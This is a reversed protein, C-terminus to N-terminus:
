LLNAMRETILDDIFDEYQLGHDKGTDPSLQDELELREYEFDKQKAKIEWAFKMDRTGKVKFYIPTKEEIWIDGEGEKQLFVQYEIEASVTEAFVGDLHIYCEGNEDTVAEGIDGFMPSPMEYCYLLRDSYHETAVSRSKGNSTVLSDVYLAGLVKTGKCHNGNTWSDDKKPAFGYKTLLDDDRWRIGGTEETTYISMLGKLDLQAKKFDADYNELTLFPSDKDKIYFKYGMKGNSGEKLFNMYNNTEIHGLSGTPLQSSSSSVMFDIKGKSLKTYIAMLSSGLYGTGRSLVDIGKILVGQIYEANIYLEGKEDIYIGQSAGNNTLKNFVDLQKVGTEDDLWAERVQSSDIYKSALDWDASAFAQDKTKARICSKIDGEKGQTWLDGIDYPPVPETVFIRKKAKALDRADNDSYPLSDWKTGNWRKTVNEWYWLDGVHQAKEEVTKWTASPDDSQNYTEVKGDIQGQLDDAVAKILAKSAEQALEKISKGTLAFETCDMRIKGTAGDVEFTINGDNDVAKLGRTDIWEAIIGVAALVNAVVNGDSDRGYTWTKGGDKSIFFGKAGDKWAYTSDKIDPTNSGYHIEAGEDDVETFYYMGLMNLALNNFYEQMQKYESVKKQAGKDVLDLLKTVTGGSSSSNKKKAEAANSASMPGNLKYSINTIYCHYEKNQADWLCAPDGAEVSFDGLCTVTMKRFRLGVYGNVLCTIVRQVNDPTILPNNQIQLMYDKAGYTYQMDGAKISIGTIVTDEAAIEKSKFRFLNHHIHDGLTGGDYHSSESFTFNGGDLNDGSQYKSASTQDFYGGDYNDPLSFANRDYGKLELEDRVNFRAYCGACQAIYGILQRWTKVNPKEAVEMDDNVFSNSALAFRCKISCEQMMRGLTSPFTLDTSYEKETNYMSDYCVLEITRGKIKSEYVEYRGKLYNNGNNIIYPVIAADEFNYRSYQDDLNNVAVTFTKMAAYGISFTGADSSADSFQVSDGRINEKEIVLEEESKLTIHVKLSDPGERNKTKIM